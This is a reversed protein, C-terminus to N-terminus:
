ELVRSTESNKRVYQLKILGKTGLLALIYTLNESIEESSFSFFLLVMSFYQEIAKMQITVCLPKM